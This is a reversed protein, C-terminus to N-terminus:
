GVLGSFRNRFFKTILCVAFQTKFFRNTLFKLVPKIKPLVPKKSFFNIRSQECIKKKLFRNKTFLLRTEPIEIYQEAGM